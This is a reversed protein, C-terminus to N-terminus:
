TTKEKNMVPPRIVVAIAFALAMLIIGFIWAFSYNGNM